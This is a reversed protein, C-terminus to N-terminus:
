ELLIALVALYSVHLLQLGPQECRFVHGDESFSGLIKLFIVMLFAEVPCLEYSLLEEPYQLAKRRGLLFLELLVNVAESKQSFVTPVVFVLVDGLVVL